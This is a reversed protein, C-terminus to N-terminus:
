IASSVSGVHNLGFTQAIVSLPVDGYHQCLYLAVKRPMNAIQCGSKRKKIDCREVEYANAVASIIDDIAPRDSLLQSLDVNVKLKKKQKTLMEKFSKNGIVSRINGKSYFSQTEDDTGLDVFTKYSVYKQKSGLIEYTKERYLWSEAKARNIYAPYSSWRYSELVKVIPPKMDVPNRHIYRSLQLLYSDREVLIAKYRGRFLPGDTRKLRNYRQTYVGNIHRMVRDLNARPTEILLHYHSGMLCYAHILADFREYTEKLTQIFTSYYEDSHFIIQRGRGRNMVHYFANEYQIRQPRSM